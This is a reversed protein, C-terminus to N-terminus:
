GNEREGETRARHAANDLQDVVASAIRWHPSDAGDHMARATSEFLLRRLHTHRRSAVNNPRIPNGYIM